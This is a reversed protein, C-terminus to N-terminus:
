ENLLGHERVLLEFRELGKLDEPGLRYHFRRLYAEMADPTWGVDGQQRAVEPLSALGAAVSSELYRGLEGGTVPELATRVARAASVFSQGTWELWYSGHDLRNSFVEQRRSLM